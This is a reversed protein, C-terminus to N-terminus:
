FLSALFVYCLIHKSVQVFSCFLSICPGNYKMFSFSTLLVMQCLNFIRSLLRIICVLRMKDNADTVRKAPRIIIGRVFSVM